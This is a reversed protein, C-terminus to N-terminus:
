FYSLIGLNTMEFEKKLSQKLLEINVVPNSSTILLDDM